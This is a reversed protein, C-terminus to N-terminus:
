DAHYVKEDPYVMNLDDRAVDEIVDDSDSNDIAYELESNRAKREEIQELLHAKEIKADAIKARLSILSTISYILLVAIIIKTIIGSRKGRM